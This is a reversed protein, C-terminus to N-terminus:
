PSKKVQSWEDLPISLHSRRPTSPPEEQIEILLNKLAIFTKIATDASLSHVLTPFVDEILALNLALGKGHSRLSKSGLVLDFSSILFDTCFEVVDAVLKQVAEALHQAKIRPLSLQLKECGLLTDILSEENLEGILAEFCEKQWRENLHLFIRGKWIRAFNRAQWSMAEEFLGNLCKIAHFQPLADFIASVCTACPRHFFHCKHTKIHLKAVQTLEEINLHTALSIVEWVDVDDPICTLGGYLFELLFNIVAKSFGKLEIRSSNKLHKKFFGSNAYLICRHARLEGEDTVIVVDSDTGNRYMELLDAALRCSPNADSIPAPGEYTPTLDISTLSTLSTVSLRRAIMARGRISGPTQYNGDPGPLSQTMESTSTEDGDFGIFMPFIAKNPMSRHMPSQSRSDVMASESTDLRIFKCSMGKEKERNEKAVIEDGIDSYGSVCMNSERSSALERFSTMVPETTRRCYGKQQSDEAATFSMSMNETSESVQNTVDSLQSTSAARSITLSDNESKQPSGQFNPTENNRSSTQDLFDHDMESNDQDYENRPTGDGSDPRDHEVTVVEGPLRSIEDETYVSRIFFKLGASDVDGVAVELPTKARSEKPMADLMPEVYRQFFVPARQRLICLHAPLRRGDAAVLIVDATEVHGILTAMNEKLKKTLNIQIKERQTSFQEWLLSTRM